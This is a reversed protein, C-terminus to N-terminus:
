ETAGASNKAFEARITQIKNEAHELHRGLQTLIALGEEYAQTSEDIDLQPDQLRALVEDLQANLERYSIQENKGTKKAM